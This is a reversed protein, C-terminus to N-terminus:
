GWRHEGIWVEGSGENVGPQKWRYVGGKFLISNLFVAAEIAIRVDM